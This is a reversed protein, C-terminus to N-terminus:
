RSQFVFSLRLLAMFHIFYGCCAWYHLWARQVQSTRPKLLEVTTREIWNEQESESIPEPFSVIFAIIINGWIRHWVCAQWEDSTSQVPRLKSKSVGFRWYPFIEFPSSECLVIVALVGVSICVIPMLSKTSIERWTLYWDLHSFPVFTWISIMNLASSSICISRQKKEILHWSAGYFQAEKFITSRHIVLRRNM